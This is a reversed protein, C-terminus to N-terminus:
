GMAELGRLHRHCWMNEAVRRQVTSWSPRGLRKQLIWANGDLDNFFRDGAQHSALLMPGLLFASGRQSSLRGITDLVAM